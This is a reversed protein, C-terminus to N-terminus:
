CDDSRISGDPLTVNCWSVQDDTITGTLDAGSFDVHDLIAGSFDAGSLDAGTFDVFRIVSNRLTAGSLNAGRFSVTGEIAVVDLNVGHLDLDDLTDMELRGGHLDLDACTGQSGCDSLAKGAESSVSPEPISDPLQVEVADSDGSSRGSSCGM